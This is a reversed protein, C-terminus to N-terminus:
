EPLNASLALLSKWVFSERHLSQLLKGAQELAEVTDISCAVTSAPEDAILRRVKEKLSLLDATKALLIRNSSNELDTLLLELEDILSLLLKLKESSTDDASSVAAADEATNIRKDSM